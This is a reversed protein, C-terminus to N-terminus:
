TRRELEDLTPYDTYGEEGGGYFTAEIPENLQAGRRFREVLDPNALFARGFAVADAEGSEIRMEAEEVTYEGCAIIAGDYADRLARRFDHSLPEGGAWDPEAVHLYAIGIRKLEKALYVSSAESETDKLDFGVFNPSIRIGVRDAGMVGAVAELVEVTLRVRNKVSGGYEDTRRNTNTSMFQQLLYGNAAHVEVMDFGARKARNTADVYQLVIGPLEDTDLSRPEDVDIFGLSGDERKVFVQTNEARIASPAVAQGGDAQALRHSVRGVHWLQLAIRGQKAHVAGAVAKWGAEQADSYIGPAGWYGQGQKSIQTAETVILGAGARQAYYRANMEAPVDGPQSARNRTLPAMVVRNPLELAGVRIPSLLKELPM